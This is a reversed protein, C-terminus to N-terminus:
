DTRSHRVDILQYISDDFTSMYYEKGDRDIAVTTKKYDVSCGPFISRLRKLIEEINEVIFEPTIDFQITTDGNRHINQIINSPVYVNRHVMGNHTCIRGVKLVYLTESNREAYQVTKLYIDKVIFDLKLDHGEADKQAKFARMEERSFPTLSM